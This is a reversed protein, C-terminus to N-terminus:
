QTVTVTGTKASDSNNKYGWTGAADFTFEWFDGPELAKCTDLASSGCGNAVSPYLAGAGDTAAVWLDGTANNTFRVTEGKKVDLTTPEFGGDTYSVLAQFGTSKALIAEMVPTLPPIEAAKPSLTEAPSPASPGANALLYAGAALVVLVVAGVAIQRPGM